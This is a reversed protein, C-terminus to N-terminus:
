QALLENLEQKPTVGVRTAIAEGAKFLMLTPISRVGYASALAQEEDINVKVLNARPQVDAEVAELLQLQNQCPGCWDAYFDVLVPGEADLVDRQFNAATVNKM